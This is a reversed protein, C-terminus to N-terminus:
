YFKGCGSCQLEWPIPAGDQAASQAQYELYPYGFSGHSENYPNSGTAEAIREIVSLRTLSLLGGRRYQWNHLLEERYNQLIPM